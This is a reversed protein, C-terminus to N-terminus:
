APRPIRVCATVIGRVTERTRPDALTSRPAQRVARWLSRVSWALTGYSARGGEPGRGVELARAALERYFLSYTMASDRQLLPAARRCAREIVVSATEAMLAFDCSQSSSTRRYLVHPTAVCVFRHHAALRLWLDWDECAHLSEDFAGADRVAQTYILPSSGNSLFNGHLLPALVDGNCTVHCRGDTRQGREDIYDTWSYAVSADRHSELAEVQATLKNPLWVDDADLFAVLEGRAAELGVNRARSPGAQAVSLVRLRPDSIRGLVALTGDRSGDDVAILELDQFTQSLGSRVSQEITHEANCAPMVVSIKPVRSRDRADAVSDHIPFM